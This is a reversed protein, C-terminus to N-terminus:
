KRVTASNKLLMGMVNDAIQGAGTNERSDKSLDCDFLRQISPPHFYGCKQLCWRFHHRKRVWTESAVMEMGGGVVM